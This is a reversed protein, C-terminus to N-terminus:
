GVTLNLSEPGCPDSGGCGWRNTRKDLGVSGRGGRASVGWGVTDYVESGGTDSGM